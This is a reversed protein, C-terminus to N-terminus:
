QPLHPAPPLIAGYHGTLYRRASNTGKHRPFGVLSYLSTSGDTQKETFWVQKPELPTSSM